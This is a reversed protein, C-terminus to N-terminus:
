CRRPQQKSFEVSAGGAKSFEELDRKANTHDGKKFYAQGRQFKAKHNERRGDLAKTYAEIAKDFLQKDDNAMGVEYWVDSQDQANPIVRDLVGQTAVSLAQDTYDWARYLEVLAVWPAPEPPVSQLAKTFEEAAEKSKGTDRYIRGLYYHARWLEPNLKVAETLHQLAIQFNAQALDPTIEDAKKQQAPAQAERAAQVVREYEAYGYLLQYMATGPSLEVTKKAAEAAQKWDKKKAHSGALGYWATTNERWREIAKQYREIATEFQNQSYAKTGENSAKVSENRNKNPCGATLLLLAASAIAAVLKM